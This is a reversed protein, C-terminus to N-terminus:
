GADSTQEWDRVTDSMAELRAVALRSVSNLESGDAQAYAIIQQKMRRAWFKKLHTAVQEAAAEDNGHYLNNISIQNVMKILSAKEDNM